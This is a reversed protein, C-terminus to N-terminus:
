TGKYNLVQHFTHDIRVLDAQNARVADIDKYASPIEDILADAQDVQWSRSQMQERLHKATHRRKAETRSLRRGAGHSCSQCSLANGVWQGRVVQDGDFWSNARTRRSGSPHGRAPSGCIVSTTALWTPNSRRTTTIVISASSKAAAVCMSQSHRSRLM